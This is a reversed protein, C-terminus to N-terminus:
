TKKNKETGLVFFPQTPFIFNMGLFVAVVEVSQRDIPFAFRMPWSYLTEGFAHGPQFPAFIRARKGTALPRFSSTNGWRPVVPCMDHPCFIDVFVFFCYYPTMRFFPLSACFALTSAGCGRSRKERLFIQTTDEKGNRRTSKRADLRRREHAHIKM